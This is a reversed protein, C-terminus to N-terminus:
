FYVETIGVRSRDAPGPAEEQFELVKWPGGPDKAPSVPHFHLHQAGSSRTIGSRRGQHTDTLLDWKHPQKATELDCVEYNVTLLSMVLVILIIFLYFGTM